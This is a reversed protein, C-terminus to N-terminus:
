CTTDFTAFDEQQMKEALDIAEFVLESDINYFACAADLYTPKMLESSNGLGRLAAVKQSYNVDFYIRSFLDNMTSMKLRIGIARAHHRFCKTAYQFEEASQIAWSIEEEYQPFALDIAELIQEEDLGYREATISLFPPPYEIPSIYEQDATRMVAAYAYGYHAYSFIDLLQCLSFDFGLEKASKRFRTAYDKFHKVHLM